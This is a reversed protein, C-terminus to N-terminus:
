MAVFLLIITLYPEFHYFNLLPKLKSTENLFKPTAVVVLESYQGYGVITAASMTVSYNTNPVLGEIVHERMEGDVETFNYTECDGPCFAIAYSIIVGNAQLPPLADWSVTISTPSESGASFEPGVSPEQQISHFSINTIVM